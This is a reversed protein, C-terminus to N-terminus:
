PSTYIPWQEAMYKRTAYQDESFTLQIAKRNIARIISATRVGSVDTRELSVVRSQM